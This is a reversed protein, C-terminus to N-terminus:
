LNYEGLPKGTSDLVTLTLKKGQKKLVMLTAGDLKYGGGVFVPCPNGKAGKKLTAFEHTHAGLAVDFKAKSLFPAWMETCPQYKDTNGWVPIHTVLVRRRANRFEDSKLEKDLFEAQERRLDAFDNLGYYVWTSDPKDEGCDLTVFRIGGLTFAGYTKGDPRDFLSPAGSSYANRIEHNGRIFVNPNEALDFAEAVLHVDEVAGKRSGPEDLCDGNFIVLDHPIEKTLGALTSITNKFGHLDNVIIATFDESDAEPIKFSYFPSTYERGFTKHYASNELIEKARVRYFVTSGPTLNELRVKHELDHVVEQGGLLQRVSHLDTTDTGFEVRSMCPVTTQYMVTAGEPTVNQLYPSYWMLKKAEQPFKLNSVIPRHDSAVQEDIVKTGWSMADPCNAVLIFDIREYPRNSPFTPVKTDGINVFRQSLRKMVESDPHSNFDGMLVFPKPALRKAEKLIIATSAIADEETLSLHTCGVAYDEFELIVMARKEERGPLPLRTVSLPKKRTLMGIGYKGGDYDIAPAYVPYMATAAGLEGLVYRKGSRNTMSDVEQVAVVDPMQRDIVAGVRAPDRVDDMGYGNKINYTMVKLSQAQFHFPASLAILSFVSLSLITKKM